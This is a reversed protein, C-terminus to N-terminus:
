PRPWSRATYTYSLVWIWAVLRNACRSCDVTNGAPCRQAISSMGARSFLPPLAAASSRAASRSVAVLMRNWSIWALLKSVSHLAMANCETDFNSAHILQFLISTATELDAALDDAAANGGSKLRAPIDLMAWRQGAPFVTSQLRHAFRKTAHIQTSDYVYVARDQGLGYGNWADRQPMCYRYVEQMISTMADRVQEAREARKLLAEIQPSVAARTESM